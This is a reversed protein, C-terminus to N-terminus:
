LYLLEEVAKRALLYHRAVLIGARGLASLVDEDLRQHACDCVSRERPLRAFGLM